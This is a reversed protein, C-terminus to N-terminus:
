VKEPIGWFFVSNTDINLSRTGYNRAIRYFQSFEDTSFYQLHKKTIQLDEIKPILVAVSGDMISNNPLFTARPNYSLNPVLVANNNNLFKAIAFSDINNIYSDYGKIDVVGQNVINRSKLVRIKGESSTHKKTIQRDRYAKFINFKLKKAVKDFFNERYILWCPFEKSFIYDQRKSEIKNNILSEIKIFNDLPIKKTEFLISITEIKVGKFGKEGYDFIKNFKYQSLLERTKNFEPASLLSKPTILAVFSGLKNAKEIFFSFLNNTDQNFSQSKYKISLNKDTVKGFPPNGVVIDYTEKFDHLLFDDNIFNIKINEPISIKKLLVKLSKLVENDIDVVDIEVKPVGSYKKILCPLFNGMGVSPELIKLYEFKDADPLDKILSYCIDQRTYYAATKLRQANALEYIRSLQSYSYADLNKILFENLNGNNLLSNQEIIKNIEQESFNANILATKINQALQRFIITPVAEGLCQRINMEESYLYKKKSKEDLKNLEPYNKESWKFDDPISMLRMLERISFVRNDKPHVTVQSALIDNRTHVCPGVKDWYARTYKDGNKNTNSVIKGDIIQHPRKKPDENDFASQGEKTDKIWDLMKETYPRFNHYIDKDWIEGMNNLSPLDGIVERVTREKTLSPLIEYPNVDSQDKRVGIVLTRTRSSPNGYEKFNLVKYIINYTEDLNNGIAEKISKDKGDIDTCITNLFARVNELIFFKPNIEKILKLSEIVLSNRGLENKKKHNAVSMGQCPPTAIIVDIDKINEKEKWLTLEKYIKNKVESLILDGSIYGTDYKCKQNHKQVNLRKEILESTAVCGFGELKFGYCGVGASSFLSIYTLKQKKQLM